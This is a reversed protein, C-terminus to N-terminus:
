PPTQSAPMSASFRILPIHPLTFRQLTPRLVFLRASVEEFSQWEFLIKTGYQGDVHTSVTKRLTNGFLNDRYLEDHKASENERIM